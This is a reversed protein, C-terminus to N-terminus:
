CGTLKGGLNLWSAVILSGQWWSYAVQWNVALVCGALIDYLQSFASISGYASPTHAAVNSRCVMVM